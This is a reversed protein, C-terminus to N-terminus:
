RSLSFFFLFDSVKIDQIKHREFEDITEELQRTTRAADMTARQLESEAQRPPLLLSLVISPVLLRISPSTEYEARRRPVQFRNLTVADIM